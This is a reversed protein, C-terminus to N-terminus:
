EPAHLNPFLRAFRVLVEAQAKQLAEAAETLQTKMRDRSLKASALESALHDNNSGMIKVNAKLSEIDMLRVKMTDESGTLASSLLRRQEKVDHHELGLLHSKGQLTNLAVLIFQLKEESELLQTILQSQLAQEVQM